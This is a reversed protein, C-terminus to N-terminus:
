PDINVIGSLSNDTKLETLLSPRVIMITSLSARVFLQGKVPIGPVNSIFWIWVSGGYQSRTQNKTGASPFTIVM